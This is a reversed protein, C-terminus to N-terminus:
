SRTFIHKPYSLLKFLIQFERTTLLVPERDLYTQMEDEELM